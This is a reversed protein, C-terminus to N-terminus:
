YRSAEYVLLNGWTFNGTGHKTNDFSIMIQKRGYPFIMPHPQTDTGGEFLANLTGHYAMSSDFVRSSIGGGAPGGAVIWYGPGVKLIKTGEYGSSTDIGILTWTILDASHAAAAYFPSGFFDTRQTMSYAILWRNNTADRVLMADYAGPSPGAQPLSLQTMGAVVNVGYLIERGEELKHLVQIDNGFGNGWTGILIRRDGNPYYIIHPVLDAYISGGRQVLIAGVQHYSYDDLNLEFIGAYAAGLADPLTASFLITSSTPYYPSGDENTVITQDRIGVGGPVGVRLNDFEWTVAGGKSASFTAPAWGALNGTIQFDYLALISTGTIYEWGAGSDMWVTVSNGVLSMGLKFSSPVSKIVLALFSVVGGIRAEVLIHNVGRRVLALVYNNGGDGIGVGGNSYVSATGTTVMNCEVWVLPSPLPLTHLLSISTKDLLNNAYSHRLVGGTISISGINNSTDNILQGVDSSFSETHAILGEPTVSLHNNDVVKSFVLNYPLLEQAAEASRGSICGQFLWM